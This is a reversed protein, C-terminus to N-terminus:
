LGVGGFQTTGRTLHELAPICPIRVDDGDRHVRHPSNQGGMEIKTTVLYTEIRDVSLGLKFALSYFRPTFFVSYFVLTNVLV